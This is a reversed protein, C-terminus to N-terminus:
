ALRSKLRLKLKRLEEFFEDESKISIPPLLSRLAKLLTHSVIRETDRIDEKTVDSKGSHVISSRLQYIGRLRHHMLLREKSTASMLSTYDALTASIPTDRDRSFLAEASIVYFLFRSLSDQENFGKSFFHLAQLFRKKLKDKTTKRDLLNLLAAFDRKVFQRTQRADFRTLLKSGERLPYRYIEGSRKDLLFGHSIPHMQQYVSELTSREGFNATYLNHLQKFLRLTGHSAHQSVLQSGHIAFVLVPVSNLFKGTQRLQHDLLPEDVTVVGFNNRLFLALTRAQRFPHTLLCQGLRLPRFAKLLGFPRNYDLPILALWDNRVHHFIDKFAQLYEAGNKPSSRYYSHHLLHVITEGDYHEAIYTNQFIANLLPEYADPADFIFDSIGTEPDQNQSELTALKDLISEIKATAKFSLDTKM